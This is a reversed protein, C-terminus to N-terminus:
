GEIGRKTIKFGPLIVMVKGDTSIHLTRKGTV